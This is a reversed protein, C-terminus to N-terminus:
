DVGETEFGRKKSSLLDTPDDRPETGQPGVKKKRPLASAQQIWIMERPLEIEQIAM